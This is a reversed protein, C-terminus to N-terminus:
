CSVAAFNSRASARRPRIAITSATIPTAAVDVKTPVAALRAASVAYTGVGILAGVLAVALLRRRSVMM